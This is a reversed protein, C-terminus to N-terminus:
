EGAGVDLIVAFVPMVDGEGFVVFYGEDEQPCAIDGEKDGPAVDIESDCSRVLQGFEFSLKRM